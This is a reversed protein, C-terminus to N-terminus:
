PQKHVKITLYFQPLRHELKTACQFYLNEAETLSDHQQLRISNLTIRAQRVKELAETKELQQQYLTRCYLHKTFCRELYTSREMIVPGLNKDSLCIIFRHDDKLSQLCNYQLRTLNSRANTTNNAIEIALM